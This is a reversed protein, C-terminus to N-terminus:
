TMSEDRSSRLRRAFPFAHASVEGYALPRGRVAGGEEDQAVLRDIMMRMPGLGPGPGDHESTVGSHVFMSWPQTPFSLSIIPACLSAPSMSFPSMRREDDSGEDTMCAAALRTFSIRSRSPYM